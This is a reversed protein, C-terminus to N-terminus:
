HVGTGFLQNGFFPSSQLSRLTRQVLLDQLADSFLPDHVAIGMRGPKSWRVDGFFHGIQPLDVKIGDLPVKVSRFRLCLGFPSINLTEIECRKGLLTVKGPLAMPLRRAARQEYPHVCHFM